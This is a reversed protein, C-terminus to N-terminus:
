NRSQENKQKRMEKEAQVIVAVFLFIVACYCEHSIGVRSAGEFERRLFFNAIRTHTVVEVCVVRILKDDM